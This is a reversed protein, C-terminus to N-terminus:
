KNTTTTTTTTNRIINFARNMYMDCMTVAISFMTIYGLLIGGWALEAYYYLYTRVVPYIFYEYSVFCQIMYVSPLILMSYVMFTTDDFIINIKLYNDHIRNKQSKMLSNYMPFVMIHFLFLLMIYFTLNYILFVHTLMVLISRLGNGRGMLLVLYMGYVLITEHAIYRTINIKFFFLKQEIEDLESHEIVSPQQQQQQITVKKSEPRRRNHIVKKVYNKVFIAVTEMIVMFVLITVSIYTVLTNERLIDRTKPLLLIGLVIAITIVEYFINLLDIKNFTTKTSLTSDTLKWRILFFFLLLYLFLYWGNFHQQVHHKKIFMSSEMNNIHVIYDLLFTNGLVYTNNPNYESSLPPEMKSLPKLLMVKAGYAGSSIINRETISLIMKKPCTDVDIKNRALYNNPGESTHYDPVHLELDITDWERTTHVNKDSIYSWFVDDPIYTYPNTISWIVTSQIGGHYAHDHICMSGETIALDTEPICKLLFLGCEKNTTFLTPFYGFEISVTSITMQQWLLWNFSSGSFGIVGDSTVCLSNSPKSTETRDSLIQLRYRESGFYVFDTGLEDDEDDEATFTISTTKMNLFLAIDRRNFVVELNYIRAPTGIM